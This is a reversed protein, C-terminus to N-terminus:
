LTREFDQTGMICSQNPRKWPHGVCHKWRKPNASGMYATFQFSWAPWDKHEGTFTRTKDITRTDLLPASKPAAAALLAQEAQILREM